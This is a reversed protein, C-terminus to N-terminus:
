AAIALPWCPCQLTSRTNPSEAGLTPQPPTVARSGMMLRPADVTFMDFHKTVLEPTLKSKITPKLM